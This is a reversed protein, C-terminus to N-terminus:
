VDLFIATIFLNMDFAIGSDGQIEGFPRDPPDLCSRQVCDQGDEVVVLLYISKASLDRRSRRASWRGVAVKEGLMSGLSTAGDLRGNM